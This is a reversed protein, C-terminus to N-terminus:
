GHQHQSGDFHPSRSRTGGAIAASGSRGPSALGIILCALTLAACIRAANDLVPGLRDSPLWAVSAYTLTERRPAFWPLLALPLLLLAYPYLFDFAVLAM